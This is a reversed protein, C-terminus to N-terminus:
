GPAAIVQKRVTCADLREPDPAVGIGAGDPVAMTGDPDIVFPETIDETFYRDSASTDGPMTVGPLAALAVNPARGVGTELMGGIWAPVAGRIAVDHVRKAELLGGM